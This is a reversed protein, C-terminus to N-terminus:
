ENSNNIMKIALNLATIFSGVDATGTAALELATGHDVSTRIFPLGLTINVARGFGQYKLVPLGQDHYMALVADAHQLYKPQFLTDAPLPGILNIGQQRLADLAPIITDIEEHGMHGGEGAHPNLGCVYIQPQSIGFKTKLDNDLISIVEHLSAQTIAGPVALLPLHTTALAVRLEETALMMVVRSCHSRDAFFETHGIFPIGADNIISKQVPGTVLAAFEGSIAGDCAKALTEVVYHSNKVDLQGPIVETAIKVPLITLTGALQALAPKDQQYERLQLPLNLQSARALLLAPDACVVLEVPWDQQALAIVLDPGVGAPEGPTIVIRNNHNQM